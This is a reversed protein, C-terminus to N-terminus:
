PSLDEVIERLKRALWILVAARLLCGIGIAALMQGTVNGEAYGRYALIVAGDILLSAGVLVCGAAEVARLRRFIGVLVGLGGVVMMLAWLLELSLPLTRGIATVELLDFPLIINEVGIVVSAIAVVVAVPNQAAYKHRAM